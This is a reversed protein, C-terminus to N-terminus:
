DPRRRLAEPVGDPGAVAPYLRAMEARLFQAPTDHFAGHVKVYAMFARGQGDYAQLIADSAGDFALPAVGFRACLPADFTPSV